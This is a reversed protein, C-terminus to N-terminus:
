RRRRKRRGRYGRRKRHTSVKDSVTHIIDSIVAGLAVLLVELPYDRALEVFWTTVIQLAGPILFGVVFLIISVMLALYILRLLASIGSHSFWHRHPVMRQYPIWLPRLPGWRDDIASDIDLDPSLWYSCVLHSGVLWVAGLTAATPPEGLALLAGAGLPLLVAGSAVAIADHTRADPM